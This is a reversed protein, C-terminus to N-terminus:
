DKKPYAVMASMDTGVECVLYRNDLGNLFVKANSFSLSKSGHVPHLNGNNDKFELLITVNELRWADTFLHPCYYIFLKAGYKQIDAISIDKAGTHLEYARGMTMKTSTIELNANPFKRLGVEIESNVPMESQLNWQAFASYTPTGTEPIWFKTYVESPNEKNDRGTNLKVRVSTLKYDAATLPQPVTAPTVPAPSAPGTKGAPAPAPVPAPTEKIPNNTKRIVAAPKVVTPRGETVQAVITITPLVIITCFLLIQKM